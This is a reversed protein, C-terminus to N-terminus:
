GPPWLMNRGGLVHLHIHFVNQGAKKGTNLVLRYGDDQINLKEAVEKAGQLLKGMLEVDDLENLSAYHTKPIVLVHVPAFPNVDSFALYDDTELIIDAKIEKNVIKCFLCDSKNTM